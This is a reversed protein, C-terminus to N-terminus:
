AGNEEMRDNGVYENLLKETGLGEAPYQVFNGIAM